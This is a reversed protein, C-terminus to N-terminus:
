GALAIRRSQDFGGARMRCIYVGSAAQHTNWEAAHVGRPQRGRALVGVRDGAANYMDLSAHADAPLNYEVVLSSPGRGPGNVGLVKFGPKEGGSLCASSTEAPYAFPEDCMHYQTEGSKALYLTSLPTRKLRNLPALKPGSDEWLYV